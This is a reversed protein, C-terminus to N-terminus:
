TSHSRRTHARLSVAALLPLTGTVLLCPSSTLFPLDFTMHASATASAQWILAGAISVTAVSLGLHPLPLRWAPRVGLLGDVREPSIGAVGAPGSAEFSLLAAALPRRDGGCAAVAARDARVEALEAYRAWLHNLVPLFFVARSLVAGTALRLPDRRRRHHHEHALVAQLQGPSLISVAPASVYVEPRLYGACFAQPQPDDIVTLHADRTVARTRLELRLRRFGLCQRHLAQIARGIVVAGAGATALLLVATANLAPYTFSAGALALRPTAASRHVSALGMLVAAAAVIWGAGGLAFALAFVRERPADNGEPM